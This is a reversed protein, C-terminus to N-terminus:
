QYQQLYSELEAQDISGDGTSPLPVPQDQGPVSQGEGLEEVPSPESIKVKKYSVTMNTTTGGSEVIQLRRLQYDKTDFWLYQKIEPAGSDVVEYKYCKLDGCDETGAKVYTIAGGETPEAFDTDVSAQYRETEEESLTQKYWVDGSKTYLMNGITITEYKLAGALLVHIKDGEVEFLLTSPDSGAVETVAEVSYSDTVKWAAFFKCIDKDDYDCVANRIAEQQPSKSQNQWVWWGVGGAALIVVIAVIVGVHGVGRQNALFKGM